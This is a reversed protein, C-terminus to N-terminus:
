RSRRGLRDRATTKPGVPTTTTGFSALGLPPCDLYITEVNGKPVLYAEHYVGFDGKARMREVASRWWESHPPRHSWADLAEYSEWYQLVGVHGWGMTFRESRLLGAGSAMAEAASRAVAREMSRVFGFASVKRVVLGFRVLCLEGVSEPLEAVVRSLAM